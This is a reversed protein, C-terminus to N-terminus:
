RRKHDLQPNLLVLRWVEEPRHAAYWGAVGGSFSTAVLGASVTGTISRVQALAAHVDNLHASLTRDEQCGESAGRGRVDFRISPIGASGLAVALRTFLGLEERDTGNGHLLVVSAAREKPVTVTGALRLHLGDLARFDVDVLKITKGRESGLGQCGPAYM